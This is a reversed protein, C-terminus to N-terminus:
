GTGLNAETPGGIKKLSHDLMPKAKAALHVTPAGLQPVAVCQSSSYSVSAACFADAFAQGLNASERPPPLGGDCKKAFELKENKLEDSTPSRPRPSYNNQDVTCPNRRTRPGMLASIKFRGPFDDNRRAGRRAKRCPILKELREFM